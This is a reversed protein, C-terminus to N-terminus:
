FLGPATAPTFNVTTGVQALLNQYGINSSVKQNDITMGTLDFTIDMEIDTVNIIEFLERDAVVINSGNVNTYSGSFKVDKSLTPRAFTIEGTTADAFGDTQRGAVGFAVDFLGLLYGFQLVVVGHANIRGLVAARHQQNPAALRAVNAHHAPEGIFPPNDMGATSVARNNSFSQSCNRLILKLHFSKISPQSSRGAMVLRNKLELSGIRGPSMLHSFDTGM